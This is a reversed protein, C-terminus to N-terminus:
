LPAIADASASRWGVDGVITFRYQYSFRCFYQYDTGAEIESGNATGDQFSIYGRSLFPSRGRFMTRFSTHGVAREGHPVHLIVCLSRNHEGFTVAPM